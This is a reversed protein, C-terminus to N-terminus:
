EQRQGSAIYTVVDWSNRIGIFILLLLAGALAFMAGSPHSPLAISAGLIAVYPTFPLISYWLWDEVDPAYMTLHRARSAVR